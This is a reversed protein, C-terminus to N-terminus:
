INKEKRISYIWGRKALFTYLACLCMSLFLDDDDYATTVVDFSDKEDQQQIKKPTLIQQPSFNKKAIKMLFTKSKRYYILFFRYFQSSFISLPFFFQFFLFLHGDHSSNTAISKYIKKQNPNFHSNKLSFTPNKPLKIQFSSSQKLIKNFLNKFCFFHFFNSFIQWFLNLVKFVGFIAFLWLIRGFILM